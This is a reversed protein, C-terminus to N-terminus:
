FFFYVCMTSAACWWKVMKLSPVVFDHEDKQFKRSPFTSSENVLFRIWHHLALILWKNSYLFSSVCCMIYKFSVYTAYLEIKNDSMINRLLKEGSIAKARNVADGPKPGLFELEIEPKEPPATSTEPSVTACSISRPRRRLLPVASSRRYLTPPPLEPPRLSVSSFSTAAM